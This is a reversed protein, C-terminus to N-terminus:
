FYYNYCVVQWAKAKPEPKAKKSEAKQKEALAKELIDVDSLIKQSQRLALIKKLREEPLAALEGVAEPTFVLWSSGNELRELADEPVDSVVYSESSSMIRTGAKVTLIFCKKDM